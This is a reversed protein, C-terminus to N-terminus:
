GHQVTDFRRRKTNCFQQFRAEYNSTVSEQLNRVLFRRRFQVMLLVLLPVVLVALLAKMLLATFIYIMLVTISFLVGLEAISRNLHELEEELVEDVLNETLDFYHRANYDFSDYEHRILKNTMLKDYLALEPHWVMVSLNMSWAATLNVESANGPAPRIDVNCSVPITIM